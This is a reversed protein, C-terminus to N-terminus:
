GYNDFDAFFFFYLMPIRKESRAGVRAETM